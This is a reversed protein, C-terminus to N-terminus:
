IIEDLEDGSLYLDFERQLASFRSYNARVAAVWASNDATDNLVACSAILSAVHPYFHRHKKATILAARKQAATRMAKAMTIRTTQKAPAIVGVLKYLDNEQPTALSPEAQQDVVRPRFNPPDAPPKGGLLQAFLPFLVHGPHDKGSWGLGPAAALLAAAKAFDGSLVLLLALQRAEEQTCTRRAARVRAQLIKQTESSALWRCLRSMSPVRRWAQELYAAVDDRGLEQAALAVGDLFDGYADNACREAQERLYSPCEPHAHPNTAVIRAAEEYAAFAQQWNEDAVLADCWARLDAIRKSSRALAALGAQGQTRLVVEHLWSDKEYYDLNAKVTNNRSVQEELLERWQEIFDDFDPLPEIAHQELEHLPECFNGVDAVEDIAKLVAQPRGHPKTQMYTAVAYHAACRSLNVDLIDELTDENDQCYDYDDDQYLYISGYCIPVLLARFIRVTAAYDKELFAHSGQRLYDEIRTTSIDCSNTHEAKKAFAIIKKIAAPSPPQPPWSPYACKAHRVLADVLCARATNDLQPLVERVLVQLEDGNLVDLAHEVLQEEPMSGAGAFLLVFRRGTYGVLADAHLCLTALLM